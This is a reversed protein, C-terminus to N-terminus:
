PLGRSSFTTMTPLGELELGEQLVLRAATGSEVWLTPLLQSAQQLYFQSLQAAANSLASFGALEGTNGTITSQSGGFPTVQVTRRASAFAEAAGSMLSTLFVKALVASDHTEVRGVIGLTGDVGVAYGKLPREFTAQDPFVCSLLDLQIVVRSAGLDAAAKGLVFCGHLPLATALSDRGTGQLQFPSTFPQTVSFLMPLAGGARSTAMVGTIVRGIAFSGAPLYPTEARNMAPPSGAFSSPKDSRLIRVKNAADARPPAESTVPLPKPPPQPTAVVRPAPPQVVKQPQQARKLVDELRQEQASAQQQRERDATTLTQQIQHLTREQEQLTGKLQANEKQVDLLTKEMVAREAGLGPVSQAKAVRPQVVPVAPAVQTYVLWGLLGSGLFALLPRRRSWALLRQLFVPM